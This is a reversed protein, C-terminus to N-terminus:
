RYEKGDRFAPSIKGWVRGNARLELEGGAREQTKYGFEPFYYRVRGDAFPQSASSTLVVKGNKVLNFQPARVPTILVPKYARFEPPTSHRDAHSKYIFNDPIKTNGRDNTLYAVSNFWDITPWAKRQPRPTPDGSTLRGNNPPGWFVFKKANRFRQKLATVNSDVCNSGDYNFIFPGGIRPPQANVGHVENWIRATTKLFAGKGEWPNNVYICREPIVALVRNALDQADRVNLQHETAGSFYCEVNPYKNALNSYRKAEAVIAPFDRPSFSHTDSWKLNYEQYPIDGRGLLDDIAKYADGFTNTFTVNGFGIPHGALLVGPYKAAGLNAVGYVSPAAQAPQNYIISEDPLKPSDVVSCATLSILLLLSLIKKM